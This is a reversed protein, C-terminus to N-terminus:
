CPYFLFLLVFRKHFTFTFSAFSGISHLALILTITLMLSIEEYKLQSKYCM